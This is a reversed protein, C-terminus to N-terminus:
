PLLSRGTCVGEIVQLADPRVHPKRDDLRVVVDVDEHVPLAPYTNDAKLTRLMALASAHDETEASGPLVSIWVRDPERQGPHRDGLEPLRVPQLLHVDDSDIMTAVAARAHKRWVPGSYFATLAERRTDMDAFGRLWVFHDPRDPDRFQGIVRMGCAEQTEVLERDFLEILEDRREPHLTYQRLEVVGLDTNPVSSPAASM